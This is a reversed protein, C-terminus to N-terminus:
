SRSEPLVTVMDSTSASDGDARRHLYRAQDDIPELWVWTYGDDIVPHDGISVVRWAGGGFEVLAGVRIVFGLNDVGIREQADIM